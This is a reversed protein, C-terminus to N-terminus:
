SCQGFGNEGSAPFPEYAGKGSSLITQQRLFILLTLSPVVPTLGFSYIIFGLIIIAKVIM